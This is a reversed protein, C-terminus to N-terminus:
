VEVMDNFPGRAPSVTFEYLSSMCKIQTKDHNIKLRYFGCGIHKSRLPPCLHNIHHVSVKLVPNFSTISHFIYVRTGNEQGICLPCFENWYSRNSLNHQSIISKPFHRYISSHLSVSLVLSLLPCAAYIDAPFDTKRTNKAAIGLPHCCLTVTQQHLHRLNGWPQKANWIATGFVILHYPFLSNRNSAFCEISVRYLATHYLAITCLARCNVLCFARCM